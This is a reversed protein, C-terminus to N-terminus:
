EEPPKDKHRWIKIAVIPAIVAFGIILVPLPIRLFALAFVALLMGALTLIIRIIKLEMDEAISAPYRRIVEMNRQYAEKPYSIQPFQYTITAATQDLDQILYRELGMAKLKKQMRKLTYRSYGALEAANHPGRRRAALYLIEHEYVAKAPWGTSEAVRNLERELAQQCEACLTHGGSRSNTTCSLCNQDNKEDAGASGKESRTFEYMPFGDQEDAIVTHGDVMNDLCSRILGLSLPLYPALHNVTIAGGHRQAVQYAINEVVNSAAENLISVKEERM